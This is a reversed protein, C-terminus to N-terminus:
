IYFNILNDYKLANNSLFFHQGAVTALSSSNEIAERGWFSWYLGFYMHAFKWAKIVMQAIQVCKAQVIVYTNTALTIYTNTALTIQLRDVLPQHIYVIYIYM